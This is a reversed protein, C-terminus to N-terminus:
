KKDKGPIVVLMLALLLVPIEMVLSIESWLMLGAPPEPLRLGFELIGGVVFLAIINLFVAAIVIGAALYRKNM